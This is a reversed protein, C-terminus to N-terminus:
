ANIAERQIALEMRVARSRTRSEMELLWFGLFMRRAAAYQADNMPRGCWASAAQFERVEYDAQEEARRVLKESLM